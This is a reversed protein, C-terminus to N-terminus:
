EEEFDKISDSTLQEMDKEFDEIPENDPIGLSYVITEGKKTETTKMLVDFQFSSDEETISTDHIKEECAQSMNKLFLEMNNFM